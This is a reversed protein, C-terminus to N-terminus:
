KEFCLHLSLEIFHLSAFSEELHKKNNKNNQSVPASAAEPIQM